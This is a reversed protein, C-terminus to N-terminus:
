EAAENLPLEPAEIRPFHENHAITLPEVEYPKRRSRPMRQDNQVMNFAKNLLALRTRDKLKEDPHSLANRVALIPSDETLNAGTGLPTCFDHLVNRGYARMVLWAFAVAVAKSKDGIAKVANPYTGFMENAADALDHHDLVYNLVTRNNVAQFRPQDLAGLKGADYRILLNKAASAMAKSLGNIGATHLADGATRNKGSDYYAFANKVIPATTIVYCHFTTGNLYGALLRTQGDRLKGSTDFVVSEGTPQWDGDQMDQAYRKVQTFPVERNGDNRQLAAEAMQPSINYWGDTIFPMPLLPTKKAWDHFQKWTEAFAAPSATKPDLRVAPAWEPTSM